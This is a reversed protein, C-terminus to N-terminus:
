PLNFRNRMCFQIMLHRILNFSLRHCLKLSEQDVNNFEDHRWYSLHSYLCFFVNENIFFSIHIKSIFILFFHFFRKLCSSLSLIDLWYIEVWNIYHKNFTDDFISLLFITSCMSYAPMTEYLNRNGRVNWYCVDSVDYWPYYQVDIYIFLHSNHIYWLM